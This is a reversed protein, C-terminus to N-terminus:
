QSPHKARAALRARMMRERLGGERLFDQELWRLQQDLLYNAQHILCIIINAVVDASRTEIYARYSEYSEDRRSGLKRVYLAERSNKDWLLHNNQRLYDQYDGLL